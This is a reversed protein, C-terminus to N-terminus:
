KKKKEKVKKPQAAGGGGGGGGGAGSLAGMMGEMGPPLQGGMGEMMDRMFNDSVGGGSLAPSHLPLIRGIKFGRPVAPPKPTEKPAPMGGFRYKMASEETTPHRKLYEAVLKYLHHKNGIKSSVARGEEKILVRVRGPNAWDRPHGKDPEFVIKLPVGRSNGVWQLADVIERALPNAVSDGKAVRRGEARSRTSDFYLPYICQFSKTQERAAHERALREHQPLQQHQQMLNAAPGSPSGGQLIAQLAQPTMQSPESPFDPTSSSQLAGQQPRAFDFADLDMEEPDSDADEVEEIRPNAM